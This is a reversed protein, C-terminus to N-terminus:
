DMDDLDSELGSEMWEKFYKTAEEDLEFTAEVTQGEDNETEMNLSISQTKGLMTKLLELTQKSM